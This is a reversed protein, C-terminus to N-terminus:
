DSVIGGLFDHIAVAFGYVIVMRLPLSALRRWWVDSKQEFM